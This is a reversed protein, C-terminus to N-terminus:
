FIKTNYLLITEIYLIGYNLEQKIINSSNNSSNNSGNYLKFIM